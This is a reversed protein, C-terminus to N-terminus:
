LPNFTPQPSSFELLRGELSFHFPFLSLNLKNISGEDASEREQFIPFFLFLCLWLPFLSPSISKEWVHQLTVSINEMCLDLWSFLLPFFMKYYCFCFEKVIPVKVKYAKRRKLDYTTQIKSTILEFIKPYISWWWGGLMGYRNKDHM